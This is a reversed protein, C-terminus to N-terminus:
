EAGAGTNDEQELGVRGERHLVAEACLLATLGGDDGGGLLDDKRSRTRARKRASECPGPIRECPPRRDKQQRKQQRSRAPQLPPSEHSDIASSTPSKSCERPHLGNAPPAGVSSTNNNLAPHAPHSFGYGGPDDDVPETKIHAMYNREGDRTVSGGMTENLLQAIRPDDAHGGVGGVPGESAPHQGFGGGAAAGAGAGAGGSNEHQSTPSADNAVQAQAQQIAAQETANKHARIRRSLKLWCANCLRLQGSYRWQPTERSHCLGCFYTSKDQSPRGRRTEPEGTLPSIRRGGRAATAPPVNHGGRGPVAPAPLVPAPPMPQQHQLPPPGKNDFLAQMEETWQQLTWHAAKAPDIHDKAALQEAIQQLDIMQGQGEGGGGGGGGSGAKMFHMMLNEVLGGDGAGGDGGIGGVPGNDEGASSGSMGVPPSLQPPVPMGGMFPFGPHPPPLPPLHPHPLPFSSASASESAPQDPLPPLPPFASPPMGGLMSLNMASTLTDMDMAGLGLLSQSSSGPFPPPLASLPPLGAMPPMPQGGFGLSAELLSPFPLNMSAPITTTATNTQPLGSTLPNAVTAFCSPQESHPMAVYGNQSMSPDGTHRDTNLAEGGGSAMESPEAASRM